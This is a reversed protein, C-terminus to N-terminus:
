RHPASSFVQLQKRERDRGIAAIAAIDTKNGGRADTKKEKKKKKEGICV